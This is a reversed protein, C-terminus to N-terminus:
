RAEVDWAFMIQSVERAGTSRYLAAAAGNDEDTLLWVSMAGRRRSEELFAEVLATGHGRRRAEAVVEVEYLFMSRRGEPRDLEYGYLWGVVQGEEEVIALLNRTDALFGAPSADDIAKFRSLVEGVTAEDGPGLWRPAMVTM